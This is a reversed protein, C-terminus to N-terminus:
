EAENGGAGQAVLERHDRITAEVAQARRLRRAPLPLPQTAVEEAPTTLAGSPIWKRGTIAMQRIVKTVVQQQRRGMQHINVEVLLLLCVFSYVVVDDGSRLQLVAATAAAVGPFWVFSLAVLTALTISLGAWSRKFELWGYLLIAALPLSLVVQGIV